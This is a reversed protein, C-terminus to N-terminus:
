FEAKVPIIASAEDANMIYRCKPFGSCGWFSKGANQGKTAMRLILAKGCKPCLRVTEASTATETKNVQEAVETKQAEATKLEPKQSDPQRHIQNQTMSKISKSVIADDIHKQKVEDSVQTYPYLLEYVTQMTEPSLLIGTQGARHSIFSRVMHRNTVMTRDSKLEIKKLTSRDGFLVISHFVMDPYDSLAKKLWKIHMMNQMIPNLFRNKIIKGEGSLTQTWQSQTESGFIWGGYNKSEIVYIGSQHILVVDLETTEGNDKPLYLNFLFMGAPNLGKLEKSTLYEGYTGKNFIVKHFKRKTTKFYVSDKYGVKVLLYKVACAIYM